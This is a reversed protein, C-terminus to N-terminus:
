IFISYKSIFVAYYIYIYSSNQLINKNLFHTRSLLEAIEIIYLQESQILVFSVFFFFDYFAILLM